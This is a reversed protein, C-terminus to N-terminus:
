KVLKLGKHKGAPKSDKGSNGAEPQPPTGPEYPTIDFNMGEGTERAYIAGIHGVPIWIEHAVGGFRATFSVWGNDINLGACATAGINLIIQNDKVFQMPVRTHENVWVQIYPTHGQDSCWEHLARILYPKLTPNM